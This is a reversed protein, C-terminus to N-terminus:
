RTRRRARAGPHKGFVGNLADVLQDPASSQPAPAELAVGFTAGFLAAGLPIMALKKMEHFWNM